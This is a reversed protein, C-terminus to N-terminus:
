SAIREVTGDLGMTVAFHPLNGVGKEVLWRSYRDSHHISRVHRKFGEISRASHGCKCINFDDPMELM